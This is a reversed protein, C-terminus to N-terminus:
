NNQPIMAGAIVNVLESGQTFLDTLTEADIYAFLETGETDYVSLKVHLDIIKLDDIAKLLESVSEMATASSNSSNIMLSISPLLKESLSKILEKSIRQNISVTYDAKFIGNYLVENGAVTVPVEFYTAGNLGYYASLSGGCSDTNEIMSQIMEIVQATMNDAAGSSQNDSSASASPAQITLSLGNAYTLLNFKANKVTDSFDSLSYSAKAKASANATLAVKSTLYDINETANLSLNLADLTVSIGDSGPVESLDLDGTSASWSGSVSASMGTQSSNITTEFSEGIRAFEEALTSPTFSRQSSSTTTVSGSSIKSFSTALDSSITTIVSNTFIEKGEDGAPLSVANESKQEPVVSTTEVNSVTTSEETPQNPGCSTLGFIVLFASLAVYVIKKM